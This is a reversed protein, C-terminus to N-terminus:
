GNWPRTLAEVDPRIRELPTEGPTGIHIFGAVQEGGEVGLLALAEPDSAYWDSIWSAGFGMAHASILLTMCVAGASLQQEWAPIKGPQPRSIVAVTLPPNAIKALVAEAKERQEQRAAMIRLRAVFRAKAPGELVIFRWPFLKGHDPVRAALRLLEARQDPDPGPATLTQPSVSRRTALLALTEESATVPCPAGFDPAPPPPRNM